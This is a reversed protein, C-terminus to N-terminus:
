SKEVSVGNQLKLLNSAESQYYNYVFRLFDEESNWCRKGMSSRLRLLTSMPIENLKWIYKQYRSLAKEDFADPLHRIAKYVVGSMRLMKIQCFCELSKAMFNYMSSYGLTSGLDVGAKIRNKMVTKLGKDSGSIPKVMSFIFSEVSLGGIGCLDAIDKRSEFKTGQNLALLLDFVAEIDGSYSQVVYDFLQKTLKNDERVFADYLYIFDYKRLYTIYFDCLGTSAKYEEKFKKFTGYKSCTCFFVCTSSQKILPILDKDYLKDLNIEVYWRESFPPNVGIVEKVRKLDTKTEVTIIAESKCNYKRKVKDQLFMTLKTSSTQLLLVDLAVRKGDLDSLRM